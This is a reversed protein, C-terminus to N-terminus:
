KITSIDVPVLSYVVCHTFGDDNSFIFHNIIVFRNDDTPLIRQSYLPVSGTEDDEATYTICYHLAPYGGVVPLSQGRRNTYRTEGFQSILIDEVKNYTEEATKYYQDSTFFVSVTSLFSNENENNVTLLEPDGFNMNRLSLSSQKLSIITGLATKDLLRTSFPENKDVFDLAVIAFHEGLVTAEFVPNKLLTRETNANLVEQVTMGLSIGNTIEYNLDFSESFSVLPLFLFCVLSIFVCFTKKMTISGKM